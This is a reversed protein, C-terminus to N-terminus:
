TCLDRLAALNRLVIRRALPRAIIGDRELQSLTRSVTEITLGLYDAIDQRIMALEIVEGGPSRDAMELLFAGVRQVASAHGLLLSHDQARVVCQMAYSFLRRSLGDDAAALTELGNRRYSVVTCDCVAEASFRHEVGAELGFVDGAVHFAEIQRRGDSLFKCSRVVGSVVKYFSKAEDGEGYVEQDALFHLVTGPQGLGTGGRGELSPSTAWPMHSSAPPPVFNRGSTVGSQLSM